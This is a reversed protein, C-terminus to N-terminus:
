PGLLLTLIQSKWLRTTCVNSWNNTFSTPLNGRDRPAEAKDASFTIFLFEELRDHMTRYGQNELVLGHVLLRFCKNEM